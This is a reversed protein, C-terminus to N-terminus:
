RSSTDGQKFMKQRFQILFKFQTFVGFIDFVALMKNKLNKYQILNETHTTNVARLHIVQMQVDFCQALLFPCYKISLM